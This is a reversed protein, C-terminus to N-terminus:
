KRRFTYLSPLKRHLGSWYGCNHCEFGVTVTGNYVTRNKLPTIKGMCVPCKLPTGKVALEKYEVEIEAIDSELVIKKAREPSLRYKKDKGLVKLILKALKTQTEVRRLKKFVVRAANAVEDSPPINYM